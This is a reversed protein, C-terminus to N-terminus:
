AEYNSFCYSSFHVENAVFIFNGNEATNQGSCRIPGALGGAGGQGGSSLNSVPTVHSTLPDFTFSSVINQGENNSNFVIFSQSLTRTVIVFLVVCLLRM